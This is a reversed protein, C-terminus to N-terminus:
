RSWIGVRCTLWGPDTCNAASNCGFYQQNGEPCRSAADVKGGTYTCNQGRWDCTLWTGSDCRMVPPVVSASLLGNTFHPQAPITGGNQVVTSQWPTTCTLPRPTSTAVDFETFATPEPVALDTFRSVAAPDLALFTDWPLIRPQATLTPAPLRMQSTLLRLQEQLAKVQLTLAAIQAQLDSEDAFAFGPLLACAVFGALVVKKM